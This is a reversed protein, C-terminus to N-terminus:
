LGLARKLESIQSDWLDIADSKEDEGVFDVIIMALDGTLEDQKIRFEFYEDEPDELWRFRIFKLDKLQILEAKQQSGEWDFTYINDVVNVDDAFWETLGSPTSLRDFLVKPSTNLTYELEFKTNSM